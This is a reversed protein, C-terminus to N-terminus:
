KGEGLRAPFRGVSPSYFPSATVPRCQANPSPRPGTHAALWDDHAKSICKPCLFYMACDGLSVRGAASVKTPEGCGGCAVTLDVVLEDM